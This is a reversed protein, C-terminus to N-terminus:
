MHPPFEVTDAVADPDLRYRTPVTGCFLEERDIM